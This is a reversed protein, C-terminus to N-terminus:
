FIDRGKQKKVDLCIGRKNRNSVQFMVSEGSPLSLDLEGLRIWYREPDGESQEIKIVDAGLDGLIATAGPGAHFVGYELIRIGDLPGPLLDRNGNNQQEM